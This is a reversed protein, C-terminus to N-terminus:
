QIEKVKLSVIKTYTYQYAGSVLQGIYTCYPNHMFACLTRLAEGILVNREFNTKIENPKTQIYGLRITYIAYLLLHIIQVGFTILLIIIDPEYLFYLGMAMVLSSVLLLFVYQYANKLSQKMNFENKSADIKTTVNIADVMDWQTDTTLSIFNSVLIYQPGFSFENHLGIFYTVFLGVCSIIGSSSHEINEKLKLTFRFKRINAIFIITLAIGLTITVGYITILQNRTVISLIAFLVLSAVNFSISIINSLKNEKEYYLKELVLRLVYSYFINIMSYITFNKLVSYDSNFFIIYQKSYFLFVALVGIGILLGVLMNTYVINKDRRKEATINAGSAFLCHLTSFVFQVPYTLAFVTALNKEFVIGVINWIIIPIISLLLTDLGIQLLRKM